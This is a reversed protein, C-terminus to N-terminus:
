GGRHLSARIRAIRPPYIEGGCAVLTSALSLCHVIYQGAVTPGHLTPSAVSNSTSPRCAPWEIPYSVPLRSRRAAMVGMSMNHVSAGHQYARRRALPIAVYMHNSSAQLRTGPGSWPCAFRRIRASVRVCARARARVSARQCASVGVCVPSSITEVFIPGPWVRIAHCPSLPPGRRPQFHQRHGHTHAHPSTPAIGAQKCGLGVSPRPGAAGGYAARLPGPPPCTSYAVRRLRV